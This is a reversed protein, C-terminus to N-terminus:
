KRNYLVLICLFVQDLQSNGVKEYEELIRNFFSIIIKRSSISTPM